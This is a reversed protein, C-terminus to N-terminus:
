SFHKVAKLKSALSNIKAFLEQNFEPPMLEALKKFKKDNLGSIIRNVVFKQKKKDFYHFNSHSYKLFYKSNQSVNLADDANNLM